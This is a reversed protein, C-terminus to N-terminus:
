DTGASCPGHLKSHKRAVSTAQDKQQNSAWPGVLGQQAKDNKGEDKQEVQLYKENLVIFSKLM